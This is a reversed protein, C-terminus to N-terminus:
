APRRLQGANWGRSDSGRSAFAPTKGSALSSLGRFGPNPSPLSPLVTDVTPVKVTTSGRRMIRRTEQTYAQLKSRDNAADNPTSRKDYEAVLIHEDSGDLLVTRKLM